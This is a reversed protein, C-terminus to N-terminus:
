HRTDRAPPSVHYRFLVKNFALRWLRFGRETPFNPSHWWQVHWVLRPSVLEIGDIKELVRSLAVAADKQFTSADPVVLFRMASARMHPTQRYKSESLPPKSVALNSQATSSNEPDTYYSIHRWILLLIVEIMDVTSSSM